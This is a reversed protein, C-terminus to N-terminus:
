QREEQQAIFDRLILAAAESDLRATLEEGTVGAERLLEGAAHSTLREDQLHVPLDLSLSLNRAIRRAEQAAEGETGDLKLPLGIVVGQADFSHRLDSIQRLLKKWNTRHLPPLPQTTLRLEDSVAVGVRKTGLDLALLRGKFTEPRAGGDIEPIKSDPLNIKDYVSL